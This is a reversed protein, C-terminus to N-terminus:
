YGRFAFWLEATNKAIVVEAGDKAVLKGSMGLRKCGEKIGNANRYAIRALWAATHARNQNM